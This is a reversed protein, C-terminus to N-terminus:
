AAASPRAAMRDRWAHLHMFGAEDLKFKMIGRAFELGCFATIDAITFRSGAIWEQNVLRSDFWACVERARAANKLGFEPFQQGELVALGPHCHRIWTAVSSMLYM